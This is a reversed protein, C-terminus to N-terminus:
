HQVVLKYGFGHINQLVLNNDARLLKRIRTLYVDLSKSTFYDSRGWVSELIRDRSVVEGGADCLLQLLNAEKASLRHSEDDWSLSREAPRFSFKGFKVLEPDAYIAHDRVRQLIVKIRWLLEKINFPKTVYDDCGFRFGQLKDEDLSRASLFVIPVLRNAKRIEKALSLGDVHPLMIDLLCLDYQAERFNELAETGNPSLTTQYGAAKLHQQLLIGTNPDDEAVLLHGTSHTTHTM